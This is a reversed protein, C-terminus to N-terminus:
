FTEHIGFYTSCFRIKKFLYIKQQSDIYKVIAIKVVKLFQILKLWKQLFKFYKKKKLFIMKKIKSVFFM